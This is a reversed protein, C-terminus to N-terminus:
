VTYYFTLSMVQWCFDMYDFSHNKWCDCISTFTSGYLLKLVSSNISKFQPTPSSEQSDKSLLYILGTLGLPFWGQINMPLVSALAGISQGGSAFRQSVAFSGPPSAPSLPHSPQIAEGVWCVHTQAFELLHHLVPFGPMTCDVPNCLTPCLKDVLCCCFELCYFM